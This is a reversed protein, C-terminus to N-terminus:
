AHHHDSHKYCLYIATRNRAGRRTCYHSFPTGSYFCRTACFYKQSRPTHTSKQILPKERNCGPKVGRPDGDNKATPKQNTLEFISYYVTYPKWFSRKNGQGKSTASGLLTKVCSVEGCPVSTGRNCTRWCMRMSSRTVVPNALSFYEPSLTHIERHVM